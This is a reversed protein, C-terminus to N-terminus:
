ERDYYWPCTELWPRQSNVYLLANSVSVDSKSRVSLLAPEHYFALFSRSPEIQSRKDRTVGSAIRPSSKLDAFTALTAGRQHREVSANPTITHWFIINQAADDAITIAAMGTYRADADAARELVVAFWLLPIESYWILIPFSSELFEYYKLSANESCICYM